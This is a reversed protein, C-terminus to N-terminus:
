YIWEALDWGEAKIKLRFRSKRQALLSLLSM